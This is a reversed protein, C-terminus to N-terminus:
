ELVTLSRLVLGMRMQNSSIPIAIFGIDVEVIDGIRFISPDCKVYRISGDETEKAQCYDVVNDQTHVWKDDVLNTLIGNPDLRKDFPISSPNGLDRTSSFYRSKINIAPHGQLDSPAWAQMAGDKFFRSMHRHIVTIGKLAKSFIEASLGSITISQALYQKQYAQRFNIPEIQPPLDKAQLIGVVRLNFEEYSNDEKPIFTLIRVRP